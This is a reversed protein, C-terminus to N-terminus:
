KEHEKTSIIAAAIGMAALLVIFVTTGANPRLPPLVGAHVAPTVVCALFIPLIFLVRKM